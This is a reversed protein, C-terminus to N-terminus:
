GWTRRCLDVIGPATVGNARRCLQRMQGQRPQPRVRPAQPRPRHRQPRAHTRSAERHQPVVRAHPVRRTPPIVGPARRVPRVPRHRHTRAAKPGRRPPRHETRVLASRSSPQVQTVPTPSAPGDAALSARVGPRGDAPPADPTVTTCGTISLLALLLLTLPRPPVPGSHEVTGPLRPAGRPPEGCPPVTGRLNVFTTRPRTRLPQPDTHRDATQGELRPRRGPVLGGLAM